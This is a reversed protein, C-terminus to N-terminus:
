IGTSVPKATEAARNDAVARAVAADAVVVAVASSVVPPVTAVRPHLLAQRQPCLRKVKKPKRPIRNTTSKSAKQRKTMTM